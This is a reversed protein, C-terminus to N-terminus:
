PLTEHARLHTYSVTIPKTKFTKRKVKVTLSPISLLGERKPVISWTMTRSNTIAGNVWQMNTQQSPGSIISFDRSISKTDVKPFSSADEAVIKFTILDDISCHDRDVSATVQLALIPNLIALSLILQNYFKM